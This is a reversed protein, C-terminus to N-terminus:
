LNPLSDIAAKADVNAKDVYKLTTEIKRHGMLKKVVFLNVGKEVLLCGFTHRACHFTIHKKIGAERMWTLLRRSTKGGTPIKFISGDSHKDQQMSLIKKAIDHLPIEVENLTKNQMVKIKNNIIDNFKLDLIDSFRLGTYCSFLFGNKLDNYNCPTNWLTKLELDILREISKKEFKINLGKAPNKDILERKVAENLCGKFCTFYHKATHKSIDLNLLYFKFDECLAYNIKKLDLFDDTYFEKFKTLSLRYNKDKKRKILQEFFDIFNSLDKKTFSFNDPDNDFQIQYQQRIKLAKKINNEDRIKTNKEGVVTLGLAKSQRKGNYFLDLYLLYPANTSTRRYRLNVNYNLNANKLNDLMKPVAVKM